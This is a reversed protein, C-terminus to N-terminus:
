KVREFTGKDVVGRADWGAEGNRGGDCDTEWGSGGGGKIYEPADEERLLIGSADGACM